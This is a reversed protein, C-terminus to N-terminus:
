ANLKCEQEFEVLYARYLNVSPIRLEHTCVQITEGAMGLEWVRKPTGSAWHVMIEKQEVPKGVTTGNFGSLNIMQLLYRHDGCPGYFLELSSHATTTFEDKTCGMHRILDLILNKFAEYGHHYYLTGPQWPLYIHKEGYIMGGAMDTVEHGFCREPPGYMAPSVYPLIAEGAGQIRYFGKDLYVWDQESFSQFVDRPLTNFYSGRVPEVKEMLVQGFLEQLLTRDEGLSCGTALIVSESGKLSQAFQRSKIRDIGPLIILGYQGLRDVALDLHDQMVVDFQIHAEKLMRFIGRYEASFGGGYPPCPQILLVKAGSQLHDFYQQYKEQFRFVEKVGAFNARDPYDEFAGIICWDLNSGNALNQYLRIQNLYPSVGMFRYPIDVANIACNSSVRDPFTGEVSATNDSASYIWFPYPRDVASNSETRIIDVNYSSYTSLAIDPDVADVTKRIKCLIDRVTIEKFEKYRRYVPDNENEEAPLMEGYMQRFRKQCNECQCIGVYQDDYDRTQYGFMNFFIGDVPYQELIERIIELTKEQQYEGNICTAVTDNFHIFSGDARKSLWEPHKDALSEHVKSVDFRAIVKIGNAHCRETLIGFMDRELYPSKVQCDLGSPSFASIGGCGIQLVNAGFEKLKAIEYEVDLGADIDRLNNQIMRFKHEMWWKM